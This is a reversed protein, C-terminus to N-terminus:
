DTTFLTSVGFDLRDSYLFGQLVERVECWKRLKLRRAQSKFEHTFRYDDSIAVHNNM